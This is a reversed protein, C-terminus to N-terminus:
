SLVRWCPRRSPSTRRASIRTATSGKKGEHEFPIRGAGYLDNEELIYDELQRIVEELISMDNKVM